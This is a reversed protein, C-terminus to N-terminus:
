PSPKPPQRGPGCGRCTARRFANDGGQNKRATARGRLGV